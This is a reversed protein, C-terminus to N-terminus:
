DSEIKISKRQQVYKDGKLMSYITNQILLFVIYLITKVM